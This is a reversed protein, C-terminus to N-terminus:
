PTPVYTVTIEDEPVEVTHTIDVRKRPLFYWILAGVAAMAAVALGVVFLSITRTKM